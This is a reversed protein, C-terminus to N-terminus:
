EPVRKITLALRPDILPSSALPNLAGSPAPVGAITCRISEPAPPIIGNKWRAAIQEHYRRMQGDMVGREECLCLELWGATAAVAATIPHSFKVVSEEYGDRAAYSGVRAIQTWIEAITQDVGPITQDEHARLLRLVDGPLVRGLRACQEDLLVQRTLLRAANPDIMGVTDAWHAAAVPGTGTNKMTAAIDVLWADWFRTTANM